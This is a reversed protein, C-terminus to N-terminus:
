VRRYTRQLLTDSPNAIQIRSGIKTFFRIHQPPSTSHLYTTALITHPPLLQDRIHPPPHSTVYNNNQTPTRRLHPISVLPINTRRLQNNGGAIHRPHLQNSHQSTDIENFNLKSRQQTSPGLVEFILLLSGISYLEAHGYSIELSSNKSHFVLFRGPQVGILMASVDSKIIRTCKCRLIRLSLLRRLSLYARLNFIAIVASTVHSVSMWPTTLGM